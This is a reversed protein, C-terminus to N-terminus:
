ELTLILDLGQDAIEHYYGAIDRLNVVIREFAASDDEAPHVKYVGESSMDAVSFRRRTAVLDLADIEAAAKALFAATSCRWHIGQGAVAHDAFLVDGYIIRYPLSREREVWGPLARYGDPDLVYEAQHHSRDPFHARERASPLETLLERSIDPLTDDEYSCFPPNRVAIEWLTADERIRRMPASALRVPLSSLDLGM